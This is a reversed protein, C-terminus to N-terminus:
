RTTHPDSLTLVTGAQPCTSPALTGEVFAHGMVHPSSARIAHSLPTIDRSSAVGFGGFTLPPLGDVSRTVM